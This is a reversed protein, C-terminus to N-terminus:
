ELDCEFTEINNVELEKAVLDNWIDLGFCDSSVNVSNLFQFHKQELEELSQQYITRAESVSMESDLIKEELKRREIEVLDFYINVFAQARCTISYHFWSGFPDFQSYTLLYLSDEIQWPDLILYANLKLKQLSLQDISRQLSDQSAQAFRIRKKKKWTLYPAEFFQERSSLSHPIDVANNIFSHRTDGERIISFRSSNSWFPNFHPLQTLKRYDSHALDYDQFDPIHFLSSRDYPKLVAYSYVEQSRQISDRNSIYKFRYNFDLSELQLKTGSIYYSRTISMDVKQLQDDRWIPAFPHISADKIELEVKVIRNSASDISVLGSFLERTKARPEFQISYIVNDANAYKSTLTLRYKKKLRKKSSQFPTEPFLDSSTFLLQKNIAKSTETSIFYGNNWPKMGVKGTKMDLGAVDYGRYVGNYYMELLEVRQSDVFSELLLYSKASDTKNSSTKRAKSVMEYLYDDDSLVVVESLRNLSPNMQIILDEKISVVVTEFGVYSCVISTEEKPVKLQFKGDIDTITGYAKNQTYVNVFPLPTGLESEIILGEVVKSETQGLAPNVCIITLYIKLASAVFLTKFSPTKNLM